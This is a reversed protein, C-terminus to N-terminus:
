PQIVRVVASPLSGRLLDGVIAAPRVVSPKETQAQATAGELHGARVLAAQGEMVDDLMKAFTEEVRVQAESLVTGFDMPDSDEQSATTQTEDAKGRALQGLHQCKAIFIQIELERDIKIAFAPNQSQPAWERAFRVFNRHEELKKRCHAVDPAQEEENTVHEAFLANITARDLGREALWADLDVRETEGHRGAAPMMARGKYAMFDMVNDSM